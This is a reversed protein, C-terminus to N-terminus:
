FGCPFGALFLLRFGFCCRSVSWLRFLCTCGATTSVISPHTNFCNLILGRFWDCGLSHVVFWPFSQHWHSKSCAAHRRLFFPVPFVHLVGIAKEILAARHNNSPLSYFDYASLPPSNTPGGLPPAFHQVAGGISWRPAETNILKM